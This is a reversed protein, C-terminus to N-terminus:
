SDAHIVAESGELRRIDGEGALGKRVIRHLIVCRKCRM